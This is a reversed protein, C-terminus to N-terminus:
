RTRLAGGLRKEENITELVVAKIREGMKKYDVGGQSTQGQSETSSGSGSVNISINVATGTNADVKAKSDTSETTTEAEAGAYGGEAFKARGSNMSDLYQKGYKRVTARDMVYEGGMLLAPIDDTPGGGNNFGRIIGGYALGSQSALASPAGAKLMGKATDAFPTKQSLKGAGYALAAAGITGVIQKQMAKRQQTRYAERQAILELGQQQASTIEGKITDENMLGFRSLRASQDELNAFATSKSGKLVDTAGSTTTQNAFKSLQDYGSIESGGRVGPLFIGGNNMKAMNEAGYKQVASKRMVYEGSSLMAPVDDRIGSGGTVFGGSAFKQIYGGQSKTQFIKPFASSLGQMVNNSANQLFAQQMTKLFGQAVGELAGRLDDTGSVAASLADRLGDRFGITTNYSFTESFSETEKGIDAIARVAGARAPSKERLNSLALEFTMIDQVLKLQKEKEKNIQKVQEESLKNANGLIEAATSLESLYLQEKKLSTENLAAGTKGLNKTKNVAPLFSNTNAFITQLDEATKASALQEKIQKKQDDRLFSLLNIQETYKSKLNEFSDSEADIATRNISRLETERRIEANFRELQSQQARTAFPQKSIQNQLSKAGTQLDLDEIARGGTRKLNELQKEFTVRESIARLEIESNKNRIQEQIQSQQKIRLIDKETKLGNEKIKVETLANKITIGAESNGKINLKNLEEEINLNQQGSEIKKRLIDLAEQEGTALSAKSLEKITSELISRKSDSIKDDISLLDLRNSEEQKQYNNLTAANKIFGAERKARQILAKNQGDAFAETLSNLQTTLAVRKVLEETAKAEEKARRAAANAISDTSKKLAEAAAKAEDQLAQKQTGGKYTNTLASVKGKLDQEENYLALEEDSSIYGKSGFSQNSSSQQRTKQVESLRAKAKKLDSDFNTVALQKGEALKQLEQNQDEPSISTEQIRKVEENVRENAGTLAVNREAQKNQQYAGYAEFAGGALAGILPLNKAVGKGFAGLTSLREGFADKATSGLLGGGSAGAAVQSAAAALKGFGENTKGVTNQLTQTSITLVTFAALLKNTTFLSKEELDKQPGQSKIPEQYSSANAQSIFRGGIKKGSADIAGAPARVAFNPVKGDPEDRTNIVAFGDPNKSNKLKGNKTVRIQSPDLGAAMERQIADELPGGQAFNPIYGTAGKKTRPGLTPWLGKDISPSNLAPAHYTKTYNSVLYNELDKQTKFTKTKQDVGEVVTLNNLDYIPQPVGKGAGIKTKSTAARNLETVQYIKKAISKILPPSDSGKVELYEINKPIKFDTKIADNGRIDLDFASTVAQESYDQFSKDGLLAGVSAEFITGSFSALSGPNFTAALKGQIFDSPLKQSTMERALDVAKEKGYESLQKKVDTLQNDSKSPIGYTNFQILKEDQQDLSSLKAANDVEVKGQPDKYVWRSYRNLLGDGRGTKKGILAAFREPKNVDAFNPIYGGAGRVMGFSNAKSKVMGMFDFQNLPAYSTGAIQKKSRLDGESPDTRGARRSLIDLNKTYLYSVKGGSANVAAMISELNKSLGGDKTRAAGSLIDIETANAVDAAGTLFTGMGAAMTSKGAGSPGIILNKKASSALIAKLTANKDAPIRDSDYIYKAFNPVYGGAAGIKKAGAPLGYAKVMDQNFIASGGNAFNPVVYESTNAIMTGKKGGGFAFNPISVVKSSSSAGGVGRRVDAAEQAPLYGEAAKGKGGDKKGVGNPTVVLGAGQLAPAVSASISQITKLAAIQDGYAKLLIEQQKVQNGSAALIQDMIGKNSILTATVAQELAQREKVKQNIGLITQLSEIGFTAIDKTLKIFIAAIIPLGVKFLVESFGKIIGRALDGGADTSSLLKNISDLFSNVYGVLSKLNDNLGIKALNNALEGASVAAQNLAVDLLKNLEVQRATAENTAGLGTGLAKKFQSEANGIDGLISSLININYKSAVAELIQIREGGSLDKLKLSLDTLIPVVDRLNGATDLSEVGVARLASITEDSRVRTFITKLANGIVAGGRATKEQAVTILGNLEDFTVGVEQAISGARALGNALDEASVAFASDVAILKNLIQTTTLGAGSFSNVAATLTDVADAASLSTFRTLTLADNTRKVTEEVSLGQRSFELAAKAATNFSQSTNKAVNFLADGLQDLQAASQGSVAGIDGLAKEVAIGNDLISKFSRSVANLIGVSAGFALVRANSAAISKEFETALGTIKGLPQNLNKFPSPDINVPINLTGVAKKGAEISQEFGTQVVPLPIAKAM